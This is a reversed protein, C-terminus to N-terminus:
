CIHVFLDTTIGDIKNDYSWSTIFNGIICGLVGLVQLATYTRLQEECFVLLQRWKFLDNDPKGEQLRIKWHGEQLISKHMECAAV